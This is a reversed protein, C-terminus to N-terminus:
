SSPKAKKFFYYIGALLLAVGFLHGIWQGAVYGTAYAVNAQAATRGAGGALWHFTMLGGWLIGIAGLIRNRM